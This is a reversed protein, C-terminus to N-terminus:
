KQGRNGDIVITILGKLFEYIAIGIVVELVTRM